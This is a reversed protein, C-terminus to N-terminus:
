DFPDGKGIFNEKNKGINSNTNTEEKEKEKERKIEPEALEMQVEDTLLKKYKQVVTLKYDIHRNNANIIGCKKFYEIARANSGKQM